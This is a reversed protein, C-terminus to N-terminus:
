AFQLHMEICHFYHKCVNTLKSEFYISTYCHLFSAHLKLANEEVIVKMCLVEEFFRVFINSYSSNM